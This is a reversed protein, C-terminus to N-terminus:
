ITAGNETSMDKVDVVKSSNKSIIKYYKGEVPEIIWQQSTANRNEWQQVKDGNQTGFSAVEMAKGSNKSTIVYTKGSVIGSNDTEDAAFANSPLLIVSFIIVM